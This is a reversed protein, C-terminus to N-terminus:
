IHSNLNKITNTKIFYKILYNNLKDILTHINLNLNKEIYKM